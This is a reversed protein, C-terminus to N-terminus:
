LGVWIKRPIGRGGGSGLYVLVLYNVHCFFIACESQSIVYKCKAWPQNSVLYHMSLEWSVVSKCRIKAEYNAFSKIIRSLSFICFALLPRALPNKFTYGYFFLNSRQVYQLSCPDQSM